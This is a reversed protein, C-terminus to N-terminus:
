KTPKEKKNKKNACNLPLKKKNVLRPHKKVEENTLYVFRGKKTLFNRLTTYHVGFEQAIERQSEGAQVRKVISKFQEIFLNQKKLRVPKPKRQFSEPSPEVGMGLKKVIAKIEEATANMSRGGARVEPM